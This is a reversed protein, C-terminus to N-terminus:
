RPSSDWYFALISFPNFSKHDVLCLKVPQKWTNQCNELMMWNWFLPLNFYLWSFTILQNSFSLSNPSRAEIAIHLGPKSFGSLTESDQWHKMSLHQLVGPQVLAWKGADAASLWQHQFHQLDVWSLHFCLVGIFWLLSM